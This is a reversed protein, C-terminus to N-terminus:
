STRDFFKVGPDPDKRKYTQVLRKGDGIHKLQSLTSDRLQRLADRGQEDLELITELLSAIEDTMRRLESREQESLASIVEEWQPHVPSLKEQLKALESLVTRKEALLSLLEVTRTQKVLEVQRQSM